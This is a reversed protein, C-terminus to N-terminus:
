FRAPQKKLERVTPLLAFADIKESELFSDIARQIEGLSTGHMMAFLNYPWGEFPRRQYCHSVIRLGALQQGAEIIKDGDVRCAFLVNATFGLKRHDVVAGLRRIVGGAILRRIVKLVEKVSTEGESLANFPESVVSIGEQLATLIREQTKNLKIAKAGLIRRKVNELLFEGESQADFRADLKFVREVPLSHFDTGLQSSLKSLTLDIKKQSESQLTFWINYYHKRLYNHSVAQLSNVAEIVAVLNDDEVHATVLTGVSGIACHEVVAGIRRIVKKDLLKRIEQLVKQEECGLTKAIKRFPRACIPLPMQLANCLQKDFKGLPTSM